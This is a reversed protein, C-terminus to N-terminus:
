VNVAITARILGRRTIMGSAIPHPAYLSRPYEETDLGTADDFLDNMLNNSIHALVIGVFALAYWGAAFRDDRVALLGAIAGASLTMPLVGARTLVLWRSVPDLRGAPPNVTRLAHRWRALLGPAPPAPTAPAAPASDTM